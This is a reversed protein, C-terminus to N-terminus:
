ERLAAVAADIRDSAALPILLTASRGSATAAVLGSSGAPYLELTGHRDAEGARLHVVLRPATAPRAVAFGAAAAEDLAYLLEIVRTSDLPEVGSLWEDEVRSLELPELEESEVRVGKIDYVPWRLWARSRWDDVPRSLAEDFGGGIEFTRGALVAIHGGEPLAEAVRLVERSGDKLWLEIESGGARPSDPAEGDLFDQIEVSDVADFLGRALQPDALDEIPEVLWPEDDRLEIKLSSGATRVAISAVQESGTSFVSRSRWGGPDRALAGWIETEVVRTRETGAVAVLMTSTGPVEAGIDLAVEAGERTVLRISRRPEDLGAARPDWQDLSRESELASLEDLLDAVAEADAPDDWREGLRWGGARRLLAVGGARGVLHVRTLVAPAC